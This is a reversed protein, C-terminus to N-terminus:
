RLANVVLDVDDLTNPTGRIPQPSSTIRAATRRRGDTKERGITIPSM